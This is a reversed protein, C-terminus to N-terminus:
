KFRKRNFRQYLSSTGFYILYQAIGVIFPCKAVIFQFVKKLFFMVKKLNFIGEEGLGWFCM